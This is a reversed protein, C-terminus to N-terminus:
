AAFITIGTDQSWDDLEAVCTWTIGNDSVTDGITTPWDPETTGTTGYNPSSYVYGGGTNAVLYAYSPITFIYSGPGAYPTAHNPLWSLVDQPQQPTFVGGAPADGAIISRSLWCPSQLNPTVTLPWDFCARQIADVDGDRLAAIGVCKSKGPKINAIISQIVGIESSSPESVATPPNLVETWSAPVPDFFVLFRSWFEGLPDFTGSGPVQGGLITGPDGQGDGGGFTWPVPVALATYNGLYTWTVTGDVVFNGATPWTPESGGTTGNQTALFFTGPQATPTVVSNLATETDAAWESEAPAEGFTYWSPLQQYAPPNGAIGNIPDPATVGASPGYVYGNTAVIYATEYGAGFLEALLGWYTGGISWVGWANSLRAIFDATSEDVGQVIGREQAIEGLADLPAYFPYRAMLGLKTAEMLQDKVTGFAAGWAAGYFGKEFPAQIAPEFIQYTQAM